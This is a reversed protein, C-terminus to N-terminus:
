ETASGEWPEFCVSQNEWCQENLCSATSTQPSRATLAPFTDNIRAIILALGNTNFTTIPIDTTRILPLFTMVGMLAIVFLKM